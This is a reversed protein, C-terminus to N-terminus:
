NDVTQLHARLRTNWDSIHKQCGAVASVWNTERIASEAEPSATKMLSDLVQAVCAKAMELPDVPQLSQWSAVKALSNGFVFLIGGTEPGNGDLRYIDAVTKERLSISLCFIAYFHPKDLLFNCTAFISRRVFHVLIPFKTYPIWVSLRAHLFKRTQTPAIKM